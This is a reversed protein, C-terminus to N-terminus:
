SGFMMSFYEEKFAKSLGRAIPVTNGSNTIIEASNFRDVANMNIIYSRHCKYFSNDALMDFLIHLPLAVELASKDRLFIMLRKNQAEIYEIDKHYLKRYGCATKVVVNKLDTEFYVVCEDLVQSIKQFSIPKLLYFQAKVDYSELAFEPSSTLFVLRVATDRNRIERATEMGSLLPMIIDLFIIDMRENENLLADGNDYTFIKVRRDTQEAWQEIMKVTSSLFLADDDCVAIKLM